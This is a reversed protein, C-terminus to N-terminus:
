LRLLLKILNEIVPGLNPIHYAVLILITLFQLTLTTFILRTIKPHREALMIINKNQLEDISKQFKTAKKLLEKGDARSDALMYGVMSKWEADTKNGNELIWAQIKEELVEPPIGEPPTPIKHDTM